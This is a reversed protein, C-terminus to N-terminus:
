DAEPRCLERYVMYNPTSSKLNSLLKCFKLHINELIENIDTVPYTLHLRGFLMPLKGYMSPFMHDVIGSVLPRCAQCFNCIGPIYSVVIHKPWAIPKLFTEDVTLSTRFTHLISKTISYLKIHEYQEFKVRKIKLAVLKKKTLDQKICSFSICKYIDNSERTSLQRM